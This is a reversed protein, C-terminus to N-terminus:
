FPGVGTLLKEVSRPCVSLRFSPTLEPLLLSHGAPRELFHCNRIRSARLFVFVVSAARDGQERRRGRGKGGMSASQARQALARGREREREGERYPARKARARKDNIM